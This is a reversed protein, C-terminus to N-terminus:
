FYNSFEFSSKIFVIEFFIFFKLKSRERPVTAKPEVRASGPNERASVSISVRFAEGVEVVELTGVM